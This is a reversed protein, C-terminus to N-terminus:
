GEYRDHVHIPQRGYKESFRSDGSWVFNGGFMSHGKRGAQKFHKSNGITGLQLIVMGNKEVDDSTLHGDEHPVVLLDSHTLTVGDASCDMGSSTLVNVSLFRM